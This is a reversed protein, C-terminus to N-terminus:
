DRKKHGAMFWVLLAVGIAGLILWFTGDSVIGRRNLSWLGIYFATILGKAVWNDNQKDDKKDNDSM